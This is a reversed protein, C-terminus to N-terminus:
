EWPNDAERLECVSILGLSGIVFLPITAALWGVPDRGRLLSRIAEDFQSFFHVWTKPGDVRGWLLPRQLTLVTHPENSV